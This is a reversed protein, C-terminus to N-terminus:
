TKCRLNSFGYTEKISDSQKLHTFPMHQASQYIQDNGISMLCQSIKANLRSITAHHTVHSVLRFSQIIHYHQCEKYLEHTSHTQLQHAGPAKEM